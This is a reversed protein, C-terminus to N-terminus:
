KAEELFKQINKADQEFNVVDRFRAATNESMQANLEERSRIIAAIEKASLGDTLIGVRDDMMRGANQGEYFTKKTILPTGVAFANHVVHGYGDGGPKVHFIWRAKRMSDALTQVGSLCGDRNQSGYMKFTYEPMLKELELFLTEAEPYNHLVNMYNHIEPREGNALEKPEKPHFVSTDFEQSYFLSHCEKPVEFPMTSALLNSVRKFDLAWNNGMQLVVSADKQYKKQLDFFPELHQPLTAIIIDFKMEKFKDFRIAKHIQGTNPDTSYYIGDQVYNVNNLPPTGDTPYYGYTGLYQVITDAQRNIKWYGKEFWEEGIPRYVSHGLRRELTYLFSSYLSSHHFDCFINM